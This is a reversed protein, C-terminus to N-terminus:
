SQLQAPPKHPLSVPRDRMRASKASPHATPSEAHSRAAPMALARPGTSPSPKKIYCEPTAWPREAEPLPVFGVALSNENGPLRILRGCPKGTEICKSCATYSTTSMDCLNNRENVHCDICSPPNGIGTDGHSVASKYREKDKIGDFYLTIAVRAEFTLSTISIWRLAPALTDLSPGPNRVYVQLQAASAPSTEIEPPARSTPLYHRGRSARQFEHQVDRQASTPPASPVPLYASQHPQTPSTSYGFMRYDARSFASRDFFVGEPSAAQIYEYEPKSPTQSPPLTELPSERAGFRGGFQAPSAPLTEQPQFLSPRQVPMNHPSFHVPEKLVGPRIPIAVRSPPVTDDSNHPDLRYRPPPASGQFEETISRAAAFDRFRGTAAIQDMHFIDRPRMAQMERLPPDNDSVRQRNTARYREDDASRDQESTAARDHEDWMKM